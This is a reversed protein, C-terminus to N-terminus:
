EQQQKARAFTAPPLAPEMPASLGSISGNADVAFTVMMSWDRHTDRLTFTDYHYHELTAELLEYRAFLNRGKRTVEIIGYGPHEYRGAYDALPHSPRTGKIREAARKRKEEKEKKEAERREKKFRASWNIREGGLVRDYLSLELIAPIPNGSRNTLVVLGLGLSPAFSLRTSFGDIGGSHTVRLLGRYPSVSWGLGYASMPIEPHPYPGPVVVHPAHMDALTKGSILAKRGRKGKALHLKLWEAMDNVSSNISGCATVGDLSRYPVERLKGNREMYALAVDPMKGLDAIHFSTHTMGLPKLIRETTFEEWTSGSVREILVGCTTYMLNNYQYCSRFDKSPPLHRLRKVLSYRDYNTYYWTRDHRPVGTRHCALDRPTTRETAVPDHLQFEPLYERVPKDWDLKGEDVLMGLAMTTFAKTVSAIPFVTDPTVPLRKRLNRSGYGRSLVVQGDRVIVVAAGPVNWDRLQRKVFADFDSLDLKRARKVPKQPM